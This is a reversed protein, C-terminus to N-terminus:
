VNKMSKLQMKQAILSSIKKYHIFPFFHNGEFQYLSLPQKTEIEWQQIENCSYIDETGVFATIPIDLPEEKRFDISSVVEFDAKLIPYFIEQIQADWKEPQFVGGLESLRKYFLDPELDHLGRLKIPVSPGANGSLFLHELSSNNLRRLSRSVEFAIHGGLSHGYLCFDGKVDSLQSVVDSVLDEINRCLPERMRAGHGPYEIAQCNFGHGSISNEFQAFVSASGGAHPLCFLTKPSNGHSSINQKDLM